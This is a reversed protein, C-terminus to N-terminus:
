FRLVRIKMHIYRVAIYVSCVLMNKEIKRYQKGNARIGLKRSRIRILTIAKQDLLLLLFNKKTENQIRM